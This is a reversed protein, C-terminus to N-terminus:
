SGYDFDVYIIPNKLDTAFVSLTQQNEPKYADEPDIVIPLKYNYDWKHSRVMHLAKIIDLTIPTRVRFEKHWDFTWDLPETGRLDDNPGKNINVVTVTDFPLRDTSYVLQMVQQVYEPTVGLERQQISDLEGQVTMILDNVGYRNVSQQGQYVPSGNAETEDRMTFAIETGDPQTPYEPQRDYYNDNSEYWDVIYKPLGTPKSMAMQQLDPVVVGWYAIARLTKLFNKIERTDM